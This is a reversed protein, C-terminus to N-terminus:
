HFPFVLDGVMGVGGFAVCHFRVVCGLRPHSVMEGSDAAVLLAVRALLFIRRRIRHSFKGLWAHREGRRADLCACDLCLRLHQIRSVGGRAFTRRVCGSRLSVMRQVSPKEVASLNCCAPLSILGGRGM